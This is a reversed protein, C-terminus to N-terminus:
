ATSSSPRATRPPRSRCRSRRTAPEGGDAVVAHNAVVPPQDATGSLTLSFVDSVSAGEPDTATVRLTVPADGWAPTPNGSFTRTAENFTLWSSPLASNGAPSGTITDIVNNSGDLVEVTYALGSGEADTFSGAPVQYRWTGGGAFVQDAIQAGLLPVDNTGTFTVDLTRLSSAGASDTVRFQFVDHATEGDSLANIATLKNPVYTWAHTTADLTLTGYLGTQTWSSASLTGSRISFALTGVPSDVDDGALTGTVTNATAFSADDAAVTDTVAHTPAATTFTPADNVATM